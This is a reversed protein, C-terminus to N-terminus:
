VVSRPAARREPQTSWEFAPTGLLKRARLAQQGTREGRPGPSRASAFAHDACSGQEVMLVEADRPAVDTEEM